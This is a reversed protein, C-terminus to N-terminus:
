KTETVAKVAVWAVEDEPPWVIKLWISAVAGKSERHYNQLLKEYPDGQFCPPGKEARAIERYSGDSFKMIRVM